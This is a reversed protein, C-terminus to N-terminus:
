ATRARRPSSASGARSQPSTATCTRTTEWSAASSTSPSARRSRAATCRAPPVRSGSSGPPGCGPEMLRREFDGFARVTLGERRDRDIAIERILGYNAGHGSILALREVGWRAFADIAADVQARLVDLPVTITGPFALHRDSLGVAITPAILVPADLRAAASEAMHTALLADTELPLHSAHAEVAGLPVIGIAGPERRLEGFRTSSLEGLRYGPM